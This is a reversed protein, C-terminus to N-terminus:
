APPPVNLPGVEADLEDPNLRAKTAAWEKPSLELLRDEPWHPLVRFLDRVYAEPDLDHLKASASPTESRM